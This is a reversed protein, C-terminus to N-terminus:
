YKVRATRANYPAAPCFMGKHAEAISGRRVRFQIAGIPRILPKIRRAGAEATCRRLAGTWVEEKAM